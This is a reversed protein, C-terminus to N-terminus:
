VLRHTALLVVRDVEAVKEFLGDERAIREVIGLGVSKRRSGTGGEDQIFVYAEKIKGELVCKRALALAFASTEVIPAQSRNSAHVFAVTFCRLRPAPDVFVLHLYAQLPILIEDHPSSRVAPLITKASFKFHHTIGTLRPESQTMNKIRGRNSELFMIRCGCADSMALWLDPEQILGIVLLDTEKHHSHSSISSLLKSIWTLHGISLHPEHSSRSLKSIMAESADCRRGLHSDVRLRSFSPPVHALVLALILLM